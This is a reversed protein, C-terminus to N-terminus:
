AAQKQAARQQLRQALLEGTRPILERGYDIPDEL